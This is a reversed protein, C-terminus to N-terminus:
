SVKRLRKVQKKFMRDDRHFHKPKELLGLIKVM